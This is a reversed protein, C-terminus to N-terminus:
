DVLYKRKCFQKGISKKKTELSQAFKKTQMLVLRVPVLLCAVTLTVLIVNEGMKISSTFM